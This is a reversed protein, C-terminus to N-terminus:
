GKVSGAHCPEPNVLARVRRFGGESDWCPLTGPEGICACAPFRFKGPRHELHRADQHMTVTCMSCTCQLPVSVHQLHMTVTCQCAAPANYRYVSMSCTCQLPVSVHQLHMTVTCQCAAPANYRYVSMSCTCQLPVSVHQLHM